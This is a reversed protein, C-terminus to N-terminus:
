LQVTPLGRVADRQRTTDENLIQRVRRETIGWRDALTGITYGKTKIWDGLTPEM